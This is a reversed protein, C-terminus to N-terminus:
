RSFRIIRELAKKAQANGPDLVLIRRFIDAAKGYEGKAYFDAGTQYLKEIERPAAAPKQEESEAKPTPPEWTAGGSKARATSVMRSLAAKESPETEMKLAKDWWGAAQAYNGMMYNCSGAKKMADRNDPEYDMADELKRLADDYNKQAYLLEAEKIRYLALGGKFDAPVREAKLHTMDEVGELFRSLAADDRNLSHAYAIERVARSDQGKLFHTIGQSLRREWKEKDFEGPMAPYFQGTLNLRRSLNILSADPLLDKAEEMLTRAATQYKEDMILRKVNRLRPNELSALERTSKYESVEALRQYQELLDREYQEEVTPGGFHYSMAMRHTGATDKITGLPLIFAYDFGIKNIKYSLGATAQRFDRTGAGLSGRVSIEGKDLTPFAREASIILDRDMEGTPGEGFRLESSLTMWLARYSAGISTRMPLKDQAGEGFAVDPQLVSKLALGVSYRKGLSYIFGLDLDMASASNAGILVPDVEGTALFGDMADYTEELREFSRSLLKFSAGASLNELMTNSAFAYGYSLQMTREGYVGSLSFQNWLGGMVGLKGGRLPVAMAMGTLGLSSGDSLGTHLMSHSALFKVRELRALGAPNYHVASVDDAAATFAGGLGPARAGFGLDEFASFAPGASLLILLAALGRSALVPAAATRVSLGKGKNM